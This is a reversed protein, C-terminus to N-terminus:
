IEQRETQDRTRLDVMKDGKRRDGELDVEM